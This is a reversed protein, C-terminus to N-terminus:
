TNYYNRKLGNIDSEHVLGRMIIIIIIIFTNYNSSRLLRTLKDEQGVKSFSRSYMFEYYIILDETLKTSTHLCLKIWGGKRQCKTSEKGSSCCIKGALWKLM